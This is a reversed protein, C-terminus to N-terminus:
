LDLHLPATGCQRYRVETHLAVGLCLFFAVGLCMSFFFCSTLSTNLDLPKFNLLYDSDLRVSFDYVKKVHGQEITGFTFLLLTNRQFPTHLSNERSIKINM